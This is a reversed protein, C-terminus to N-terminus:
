IHILSLDLLLDKKKQSSTKFEIYPISMVIENSSRVSMATGFYCTVLFISGKMIALTQPDFQATGLNFASQFVLMIAEGMVYGFLLGLAASNFTRLNFRKFLVELAVIAAAFGTGFLTGFTIPSLTSDATSTSAYSTATLIALAVFLTRIFTLSFNM